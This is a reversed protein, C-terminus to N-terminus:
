LDPGDDGSPADMTDYGNEPTDVEPSEEERAEEATPPTNKETERDEPIGLAKRVTDSSLIEGIQLPADPSKFLPEIQFVNKEDEQLISVPYQADGSANILLARGNTSPVLIVGALPYEGTTIHKLTEGANFKHEDDGLVSGIGALKHTDLPLLDWIETQSNSDGQVVFCQCYGGVHEGIDNAVPCYAFGLERKEGNQYVEYSIGLEENLSPPEEPTPDDKTDVPEPSPEDTRDSYSKPRVEELLAKVQKAVDITAPVGLRLADTGDIYLNHETGDYCTVHVAFRMKQNDAGAVVGPVYMKFEKINGGENRYNKDKSDIIQQITSTTEEAYKINQRTTEREAEEAEYKANAEAVAEKGALRRTLAAILAVPSLIIAKVVDFFGRLFGKSQKPPKVPTPKATKKAM